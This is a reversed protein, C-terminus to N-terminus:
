KFAKMYDPLKRRKCRLEVPEPLVKYIKCEKCHLILDTEENYYSLNLKEEEPLEEFEIIFSNIKCPACEELQETLAEM